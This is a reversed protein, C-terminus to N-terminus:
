RSFQDQPGYSSINLNASYPINFSGSSLMPGRLDLTGFSNSAQPDTPAQPASTVPQAIVPSNYYRPFYPAGTGLASSEQHGSSANAAQLITASGSEPWCTQSYPGMHESLYTQPVWHNAESSYDSSQPPGPQGGSLLVRAEKLESRTMSLEALEAKTVGLEAKTAGLESGIADLKAGLESRVTSLEHQLAAIIADRELQSSSQTVVSAAVAVIASTPREQIM